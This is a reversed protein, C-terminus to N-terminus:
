LMKRMRGTRERQARVMSEAGRSWFALPSGPGPTIFSWTLKPRISVRSQKASRVMEVAQRGELM